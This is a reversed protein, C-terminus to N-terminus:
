FRLALGLTGVLAPRGTRGITEGSIAVAARPLTLVGAVDTVIMLEPILRYGIGAGLELAGAWVEDHGGQRPPPLDGRADLHFFGGGAWILPTFGAWDVAPAYLFSASVMEQRLIARGLEGEAQAGFMPGTLGIRVGVGIPAVYSLKLSPGGAPGIGDFGTLLAIGLQAGFGDLPGGRPPEVFRRVDDPVPKPPRPPAKPHPPVLVEVFSARLLEVARIALVRPREADAVDDARVRRLLTKETARDSVWIDAAAGEEAAVMGVAAVAGEEAAVAALGEQPAGPEELRRTVVEFGEARLEAVTRRAAEGMIESAAGLEVVVVKSAAGALPALALTLLAMLLAVLRRVM